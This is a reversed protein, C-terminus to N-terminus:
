AVIPLRVQVTTGQGATSSVRLEGGMTEARARLNPLGMGSGLPADPDFGHGDDDIEVLAHGNQRRMSIRCTTAGAHKAVNSLAERVIQIVQAAHPALTGEISADFDAVTTVGSRAEFDHALQDLAESLRNRAVGPRLEFIYGRLNGITRDIEGIAEQIRDSVREDAAIAATGQLGMGVAFLSQIVGDHLDKAIRERDEIVGLRQREQRATGYELVLSAQAAFSELLVVDDDDFRPRGPHRSVVLTGGPRGRASLPVFVAPGMHAVTVMPRYTNASASADALVEASGSQLVSGSVSGDVPIRMGRLEDAHDGAAASVVLTGSEEALSAIAAADGDLLTRARAAVLELTSDASADGLIGTAIERVADLWQGRRQSEEYLRANAIATGVQHALVVVAEEDAESFAPAGQKDTLYLNGFVRGRSQVPAGLFSHMVPHNAPFGSSAPHDALNDLRLAQPESILLGLIGRGRPLDGIAAREEATVGVTIFDQIGDRGLVGLAGYRAGTIEVALEVLHQLVVPLSLDAGLTAAADRLRALPEDSSQM